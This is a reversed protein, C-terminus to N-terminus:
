AHARDKDLIVHVGNEILRVREDYNHILCFSISTCFLGVLQHMLFASEAESYGANMLMVTLRSEIDGILRDLAAKVGPNVDALETATHVIFCGAPRGRQETLFSKYFDMLSERLPVDTNLLALHKTSYREYFQDLAAILIGEKNQWAEYLSFRNVGTADVIDSIACAGYGKNWFLTISRELVASPSFEKQRM